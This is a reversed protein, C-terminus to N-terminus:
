TPDNAAGQGLCRAKLEQAARLYEASSFDSDTELTDSRVAIAIIEDCKAAAATRDRLEEFLSRAYIYKTLLSGPDVFDAVEHFLKAGIPDGLKLYLAGMNQILGALYPPADEKRM